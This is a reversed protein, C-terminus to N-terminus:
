VHKDYNENSNILIDFEIDIYNTTKLETGDCPSVVYSSSKAYGSGIIGRPEKGLRMSFVRDGKQIEM